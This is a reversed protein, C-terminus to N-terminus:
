RCPAPAGARPWRVEGWRSGSAGCCSSRPSVLHCVRGEGGRGGCLRNRPFQRAGGGRGGCGESGVRVCRVGGRGEGRVEGCRWSDASSVISVDIQRQCTLGGVTEESGICYHLAECKCIINYENKIENILFFFFIM